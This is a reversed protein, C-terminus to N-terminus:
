YGGRAVNAITNSAARPIFPLLLYSPQGPGSVLTTTGGFVDAPRDQADHHLFLGQGKMPVGDLSPWPGDGPFEFDRGQVTVALRYGAPIVVSTPWIEIDLPVPKGPTLPEARDHPHWPRHPLSRAPDLARHSARLWGMGVVGAPDFASVFTVDSGDPDLVRLTLFLDADTTTSSVHLRAAAPGTIEAEETFPGTTFTLGDSFAGFDASASRVPPEEVLSGDSPHLHLRAWRTRALPWEREARPEFSGDVHRINLQVPPQQDWGTDAHALFHGFFRKQLAVGYDTYFLAFHELGHVELWKRDSSVRAYGEFNGRTHLHHAWNAASLVPVTIKELEPSRERYYEGDYRRARLEAVVDSRSAALDAEPVTEPGAILEGTNPNRAGREGVGHQVSKIQAPYWTSVFTDLIGAHRTLERYYDSTGEWPCIAALHPPQLAAVQWQNAAYYSIGLLGVRGNSWPQTGAWEICEYYDQNERPSFIDLYGPSRGAGRSDVRVCVYGDPVWKEPDATEWNQYRGSSGALVEPYKAALIKWPGAFGEQFALGKAYPGHSMIVPYRGDAVPRFVDARLVVGDDMRVPVDWDVRVGDRIESKHQAM